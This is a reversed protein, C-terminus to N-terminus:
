EDSLDFKPALKPLVRLVIDGFREPTGSTSTGTNWSEILINLERLRLRIAARSVNYVLELHSMISHYDDRNAPQGDLFITGLGRAIGMESQKNRVARPVTFRPLLLSAAFKNAQWELWSRPSDGQIQDLVLHRSTDSIELEKGGGLAELTIRRHLVFHAIEHALTFNFRPEGYPLSQDVYITKSPVHFRGRYRHGERSLGLDIAFVFSVGFDEKLKKSIAAVPTALPEDLCRADFFRLFKEAREELDNRSLIPVGNADLRLPRM